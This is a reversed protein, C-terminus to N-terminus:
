SLLGCRTYNQMVGVEFDLILLAKQDALSTALQDLIRSPWHLFCSSCSCSCGERHHSSCPRRHLWGTKESGHKMVGDGKALTNIYLESSMEDMLIPELLIGIWRFLGNNQRRQSVVASLSHHCRSSSVRPHTTTSQLSPLPNISETTTPFLSIYIKSYVVLLQHMCVGLCRIGRILPAYHVMRSMTCM